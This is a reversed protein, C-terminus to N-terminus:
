ERLSAFCTRLLDFPVGLPRTTMEVSPLFDKKSGECENPIVAQGMVKRAQRRPPIFKLSSTRDFMYLTLM